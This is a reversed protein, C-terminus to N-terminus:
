LNQELINSHHTAFKCRLGVVQVLFCTHRNQDDSFLSNADLMVLRSM